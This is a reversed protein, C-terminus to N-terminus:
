RVFNPGSVPFVVVVGQEGGVVIGLYFVVEFGRFAEHIFVDQIASTPIFRTRGGGGWFGSTTRTQVGLGQIVLLEEQAYGKRLIQWTTLACLVLRWQLSLGTITHLKQTLSVLSPPLHSPFFDTALILSVLLGATLRLLISLSFALHAALTKRQSRTSVTYLVTTPTPRKTTLM